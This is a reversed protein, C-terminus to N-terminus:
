TTQRGEYQAATVTLALRAFRVVALILAVYVLLQVVRIPGDPYDLLLGATGSAALLGFARLALVAEAHFVRGLVVVVLAAAALVAGAVVLAAYFSTRASESIGPSKMAETMRRVGSLPDGASTVNLNFVVLAIVIAAVWDIWPSVRSLWGVRIRRQEVVLFCDHCSRGASRESHSATAGEKTRAAATTSSM